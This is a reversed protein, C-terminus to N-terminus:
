LILLRAQARSPQVPRSGPLATSSNTPLALFQSEKKGDPPLLALLTLSDKSDCPALSHRQPRVTNKKEEEKKETNKTLNKKQLHSKVPLPLTSYVVFIFVLHRPSHLHHV